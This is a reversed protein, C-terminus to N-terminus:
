KRRGGSSEEIDERLGHKKIMRHLYSESVGLTKAAASISPARAIERKITERRLDKMVEGLKRASDMSSGHRWEAPLDVAQILAGRGTRAYLSHLLNQLERVNGPWSYGKMQDLAFRSLGTVGRRQKQELQSLFHGCLAAIDETHSRLPLLELVAQALRFYLDLRLCGGSRLEHEQRNSAAIIKVDTRRLHSSGVKFYTKEQLVRLLKGQLHIPMESIEDLFLTGQKAQELRGGRATVGTAAGAEIGFLEADLLDAPLAACNLAVFEGKRMWLRHLSRAALEKGTGTEGVILVNDAYRCQETYGALHSRIQLGVFESWVDEVGNSPAETSIPRAKNSGNLALMLLFSRCIEDQWAANSRECFLVRLFLQRGDAQLDYDFAGPPPEAGAVSPGQSFEALVSWDSTRM